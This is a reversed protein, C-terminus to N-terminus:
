IVFRFLNDILPFLGETSSVIGFVKVISSELSLMQHLECVYFYQKNLRQKLHRPATKSMFHDFVVLAYIWLDLFLDTNILYFSYKKPINKFCGLVLVRLSKNYGNNHSSLRNGM